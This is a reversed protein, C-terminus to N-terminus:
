RRRQGRFAPQEEIPPMAGADATLPPAPPMHLIPEADGSSSNSLAPRILSLTRNFTNAGASPFVQQDILPGAMGQNSPWLAILIAAALLTAAVIGPARARWPTALPLPAPHDFRLGVLADTHLTDMVRDVFDASVEPASIQHMDIRVATSEVFGASPDPTTHQRLLAQFAEEAPDPTGQAPRHDSPSM